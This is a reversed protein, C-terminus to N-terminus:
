FPKKANLAKEIKLTSIDSELSDAKDKLQQLETKNMRLFDDRIIILVLLILAAILYITQLFVSYVASIYFLIFIPDLNKESDLIKLKEFIM